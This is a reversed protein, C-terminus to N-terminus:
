SSKLCPPEPIPGVMKRIFPIHPKTENRGNKVARVFAEAKPVVHIPSLVKKYEINLDSVARGEKSREAALRMLPLFLIHRSIQPAFSDLTLVFPDRQCISGDQAAYWADLGPLNDAFGGDFFRSVGEQAMIGEVLDLMRPDNREIDYHIMGPVSASFGIADLVDFTQSQETLGLTIRKIPQRAFDVVTKLISGARKRMNLPNEATDDLLHAYRDLDLANEEDTGKLGAVVVRLPISLDKLALFGEEREFEHGIVERLYLSLTAPIGFRSKREFLRFVRSWSLSSILKRMEEVHFHPTIARFAGLIAGMSSGAIVDPVLGAEDLEMMAGLFVYGTGGGGGLALALPRKRVARDLAEPSMRTGYLSLLAAREETLLKSIAKMQKPVVDRRVVMSTGVCPALLKHLKQRFMDTAHGVDIASHPRTEDSVVQSVRAMSLAWRLTAEDESTLWSPEAVMQQVMAIEISALQAVFARQQLLDYADQQM